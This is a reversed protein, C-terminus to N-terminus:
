GDFIPISIYQQSVIENHADKFKQFAPDALNKDSLAIIDTYKGEVM